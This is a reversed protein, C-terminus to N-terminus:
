KTRRKAEVPEDAEAVVRRKIETPEAANQLLSDAMREERDAIAKRAAASPLAFPLKKYKRTLFSKEMKKDAPTSQITPTVITAPATMDVLRAVCHRQKQDHLVAMARFAQEDLSQFQVSSLEKGM